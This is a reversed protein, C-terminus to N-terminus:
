RGAAIQPERTVRPYSAATVPCREATDVACDSGSPSARMRAWTTADVENIRDEIDPGGRSLGPRVATRFLQGAGSREGGRERGGGACGHADDGLQVVMVYVDHHDKAWDDGVLIM